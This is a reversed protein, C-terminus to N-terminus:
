CCAVAPLHEWNRKKLQYEDPFDTPSYSTITQSKQPWSHTLPPPPTDFGLRSSKTPPVTCTNTAWIVFAICFIDTESSNLAVNWVSMTLQHNPLPTFIPFIHACFPVQIFRLSVLVSVAASRSQQFQPLDLVLNSGAAVIGLRGCRSHGTAIPEIGARARERYWFFPFGTSIQWNESYYTWNEFHINPRDREESGNKQVKGPM